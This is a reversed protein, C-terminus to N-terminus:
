QQQPCQVNKKNQKTKQYPNKNEMKWTLISVLQLLFFGLAKM